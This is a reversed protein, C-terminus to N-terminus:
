EYIVLVAPHSMAFISHHLEFVQIKVVNQCLTSLRKCGKYGRYKKQISLAAEDFKLDRSLHAARQYKSAASLVDEPMMSYWDQSTAAIQQRRRFSHARFAAQIRAAAQTANKVAASSDKFSLEDERGVFHMQVSRQSISEVVREAEVEASGKSMENEGITLSSLHSTLDVESLYGALGKHGYASAIAGATKVVPDLPTPDTVAGASAGAALVTAIMEDRMLITM